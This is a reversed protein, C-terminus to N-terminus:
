VELPVGGCQRLIAKGTRELDEDIGCDIEGFAKEKFLTWSHESDLVGLEYPMRHSISNTM